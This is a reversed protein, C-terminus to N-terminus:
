DQRKEDKLIVITTDKCTNVEDMQTNVRSIDMPESIVVEASPDTSLEIVDGDVVGEVVGEEVVTTKDSLAILIDTPTYAHTHDLLVGTNVTTPTTEAIFHSEALTTLMHTTDVNTTINTQEFASIKTPPPDISSSNSVSVNGHYSSTPPFPDCKMHDVTTELVVVPEDTVVEESVIEEAAVHVEGNELLYTATPTAVSITPSLVSSLPSHNTPPAESSSM